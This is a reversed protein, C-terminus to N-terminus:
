VFEFVFLDLLLWSSSQKLPLKPGKTKIIRKPAVHDSGTRHLYFWPGVARRWVIWYSGPFAAIWPLYPLFGLQEYSSGYTNLSTKKSMLYRIMSIFRILSWDVLWLHTFCDDVKGRQLNQEAQKPTGKQHPSHQQSWRLAIIASGLTPHHVM